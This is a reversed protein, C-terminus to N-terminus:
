LTFWQLGHNRGHLSDILLMALEYSVYEAYLGYMSFCYFFFFFTLDNGPRLGTETANGRKMCVCVRSRWRIIANVFDTGSCWTCRMECAWVRTLLFVLIALELLFVPCFLLRFTMLQFVLTWGTDYLGSADFKQSTKDLIQLFLLFSCTSATASFPLCNSSADLLREMAMTMPLTPLQGHPFRTRLRLLLVLHELILVMWQQM